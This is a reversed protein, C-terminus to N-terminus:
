RAEEVMDMSGTPCDRVCLGCGKCYDGLVEYGDDVRRVALDPCVVVCNDCRICTGCSFCRQTEALAASAALPLQVEAARALREAPELRQEAARARHPHFFTAIAALPVPADRAVALAPPAGPGEPQATAAEGARARLVRDIDLAARRGQGVADTVFRAMSAVDGGAWVGDVSSAQREDVALLAGRAPWGPGLATLDPDQGISTLVADAVLEFGSGALPQLTFEGRKEGAVFRVRTCELRVGDAHARARQLSAGDCLVIGEELAEEVEERQAPLQARAELALVTVEHGARRASRAADFAASGGGIVVLRQGLAPPRGANAAALYDAGDIVWPQTYDLLPLRKPRQAGTAVYVAAHTARLDEWGAADLHTDLRLEVGMAIIRAIEADLVARALRYAPIGHRMLGGLESRAEILTVPYGMRRLQFAASLGSPGGGVIAVRETRATAAGAHRWGQEIAADGVARELRCISVPADYDMRNCAAECPHHCIRGAIAPFPNNRTLTIWAGHLDGERALGLWQAIEGSVPCAQHCPSPARIHRPLAARWTGTRIAETTGTTWIPPVASM